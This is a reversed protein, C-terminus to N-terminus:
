LSWFSRFHTRRNIGFVCILDFGWTLGLTSGETDYYIWGFLSIPGDYSTGLYPYTVRHWNLKVNKLSVCMESRSSLWNWALGGFHSIDIVINACNFENHYTDRGQVGIINENTSLIRDKLLMNCLSLLVLKFTNVKIANLDRVFYFFIASMQERQVQYILWGNIRM